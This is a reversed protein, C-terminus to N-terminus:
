LPLTSQYLMLTGHSQIELTNATMIGRCFDMSQCPAFLDPHKGLYNGGVYMKKGDEPLCFPSIPSNDAHCAPAHEAEQKAAGAGKEDVEDPGM